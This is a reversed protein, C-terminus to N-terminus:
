TPEEYAWITVCLGAAQSGTSGSVTVVTKLIDGDAYTPSGTLTGLEPVRDASSSDIDFTSSLISSFAGGGTSKLVDVTTTLDGGTPATEAVAEVALLRGPGRAIHVLESVAVVDSGSAQRSVIPFQHELKSAAVYNNTSGAAIATNSISGAPATL